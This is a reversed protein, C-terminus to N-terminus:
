GYTRTGLNVIKKSHKSLKRWWRTTGNSAVSDPNVSGQGGSLSLHEPDSLVTNPISATNVNIVSCLRRVILNLAHRSSCNIGALAYEHITHSLSFMTSTNM